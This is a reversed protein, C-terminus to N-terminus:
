PGLDRWYEKLAKIFVSEKIGLHRAEIILHKLDNNLLREVEHAQARPRYNTAVIMGVGPIVELVGEQKLLSVIKAATNPNIRLSQALKRLSPFPQGPKLEGALLARKVALIVQEYVPLGPRLDVHFPLM